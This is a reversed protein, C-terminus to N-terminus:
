DHLHARHVVFGPLMDKDHLTMYTLGTYYLNQLLDKLQLNSVRIFGKLPYFLSKIFIFLVNYNEKDWLFYVVLYSSKFGQTSIQIPFISSHFDLVISLTKVKWVQEMCFLVMYPFMYKGAINYMHLHLYWIVEALGLIGCMSMVAYPTWCLLFIM